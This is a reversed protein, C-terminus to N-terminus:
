RRKGWKRTLIDLYYFGDPEAARNEEFWGLQAVLVDFCTELLETDGTRQVYDHVAEPWVPPHGVKKSWEPKGDRIWISGPVLGDPEQAALNNLIQKRAHAPGWPLVDLVQHIIDWHGFAPAYCYGPGIEEWEYPFPEMAPHVAREHLDALYTLMPRWEPKGLTAVASKMTEFAM